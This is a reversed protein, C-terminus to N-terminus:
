PHVGRSRKLIRLARRALTERADKALIEFNPIAFSRASNSTIARTPSREQGDLEDTSEPPTSERAGDSESEEDGESTHAGQTGERERM